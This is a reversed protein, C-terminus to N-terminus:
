DCETGAEISVDEAIGRRLGFAAHYRARRSALATPLPPIPELLVPRDVFRTRPNELVPSSGTKKTWKLHFYVVVNERMRVRRLSRGKVEERRTVHRV